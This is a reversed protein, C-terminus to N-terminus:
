VTAPAHTQCHRSCVMACSGCGVCNEPHAVTMVRRDIEDEDEEEDEVFEGDVDVGRMQLVGRQCVKFCRACGICAESDISGIFTPTWEVGSPLTITFVSM